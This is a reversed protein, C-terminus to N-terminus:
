FETNGETQFKNIEVEAKTHAIKGELISEVLGKQWDANMEEESHRVAIHM